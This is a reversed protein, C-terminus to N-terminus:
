ENRKAAVDLTREFGQMLHTIVDPVKADAKVKIAAAEDKGKNLYTQREAAITEREKAFRADFETRLKEDAENMHTAAERRASSIITRQKEEAEKVIQQAKAEADKVQLLIDSRNM